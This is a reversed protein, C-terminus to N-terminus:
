FNLTFLMLYSTIVNAIDVINACLDVESFSTVSFCIVQNTLKSIIMFSGSCKELDGPGGSDIM